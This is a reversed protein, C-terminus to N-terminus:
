PRAQRLVENLRAWASGPTVADFTHRKKDRLDIGTHDYLRRAVKESCTSKAPDDPVPLGFRESFWVRLLQARDYGHQNEADIRAERYMADVVKRDLWSVWKWQVRHSWHKKEWAFLKAIPRPGVYHSFQMEGYVIKGSKMRYLEGMHVHMSGTTVMTAINFPRFATTVFVGFAVPTDNRKKRAERVKRSKKQKM